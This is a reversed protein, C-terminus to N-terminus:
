RRGLGAPRGILERVREDALRDVYADFQKRGDPSLVIRDGPQLGPPTELHQVLSATGAMAPLDATMGTLMRRLEPVRSELGDIFGGLVLKGNPTLIRADLPAPGKWDTLKSTISGLTSKVKGIASKIGNVFGNILSRGANWLKSGLNGLARVARGPLSKVWNVATTVGSKIAQWLRSAGSRAASAINSAMRKVAAWAQTGMSVLLRVVARVAGSVVQKIANFVNKFHTWLGTLLRKAANLAGSFDGTLLAVILEIAPVVVNIIASSLLKALINALKTIIPMLANIIPMLAKLATVLLQGLAAILPQLAVMLQGLAKGITMLAPTLATILQTAIGVLIPALQQFTALIPAILLPLASLVPALASALATVLQGILQGVLVLAPGMAGAVMATVQALVPLVGALVGSLAQVVPTLATGVATVLASIAPTVTKMAAQLPGALTQVLTQILPMTARLAAGLVTSLAQGISALTTFLATLTGQFAASGTIQRVQEAISALVPLFGAGAAAAPGFINGAIAAIDGIVGFLQKAIGIAQEIAREMAGSKFANAMKTSISDVGRSVGATLRTFAPAAAAGIQVLGQVITAPIGSMNKLGANAGDLATGLAGSKSLGAATTLVERGMLNLSGASRTLQADLEPLVTKATSTLTSGLDKFLATQIHQQVEKWAPALARTQTVFDRAAPTLKKLAEEDGKLADGVGQMGVKLAVGASAAMLIAPAALAAAPAMAAISSGLSAVAPVSGAMAGLRGITGTLGILSRSAGGGSGGLSNLRTTLGNLGDEDTDVRVRIVPAPRINALQARIRTIEAEDLTVTARITASITALRTALTTASTADLAVRVPVTVTARRLRALLSRMEANIGATNLRPRVPLSIDRGSLQAHMRDFAAQARRTDLDLDVSVRSRSEVRDLFRQLSQAFGDTNPTVRISIRGREAGGPGAM